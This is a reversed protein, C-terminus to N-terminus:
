TPTTSPPSTSTPCRAAPSRTGSRPATMRRPAWATRAASTTARYRAGAATGIALDFVHLAPTTHGLATGVSPLTVSAVTKAPDLPVSLYSLSVPLTGAGGTASNWGGATALPGGGTDVWNAVKIASSATSGDTYTVTLTGSTDGGTSAAVVGLTTGSGSLAIAQGDALVNDPQGPRVDPWTLRIADHPLVAGPALGDAALGSAPFSDGTGDLDGAAATAADTIGVNDFAQALGMTSARAVGAGTFLGAGAVLSCAVILTKTSM